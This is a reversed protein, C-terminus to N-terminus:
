RIPEYHIVVEGSYYDIEVEKLKLNIPEDIFDNILNVKSLGLMVPSLSVILEDVLKQKILSAILFGGGQVLVKDIGYCNKMELLPKELDLLGNDLTRTLIVEVGKEIFKRLRYSHKHEFSTIIMSPAISTDYVRYDPDTKLKQDVVVRYPQKGTYQPLRVTLLPNDTIVTNAGIMIADVQSRLYHLRYLDRESSLIIRRGTIGLGGDISITVYVLVYPKIM